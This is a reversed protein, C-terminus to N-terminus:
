DHQPKIGFCMDRKHGFGKRKSVVFGVEQLNRRVWGAATYTAFTAGQQSSELLTKLLPLAWLDPNTKPNFGDLYWAEIQGSLEKPLSQLGDHADGIFLYLYAQEFALCNWGQMLNQWQSILVESFPKLESWPSLAKTLEDASMPYKEFSCFTLYQDSSIVDAGDEQACDAINDEHLKNLSIKTSSNQHHMYAQWTALFNLGTGFGLEGIIPYKQKKWKEPLGNGEIFVYRTEELGNQRSYYSDDFRTSIPTLNDLWSLEAQEAM